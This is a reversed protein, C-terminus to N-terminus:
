ELETVSFDEIDRRELFSLFYLVLTSSNSLARAFALVAVAVLTLFSDVEWQGVNCGDCLLGSGADVILEVEAEVPFLSAM